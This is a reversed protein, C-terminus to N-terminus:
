SAVEEMRGDCKRKPVGLLLINLYISQFKIKCNWRVSSSQKEQMRDWKQVELTIKM